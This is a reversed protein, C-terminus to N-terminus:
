TGINYVFCKDNFVEDKKFSYMSNGFFAKALIMKKSKKFKSKSRGVFKKTLM